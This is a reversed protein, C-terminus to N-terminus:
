GLDARNSGKESSTIAIMVMEHSMPRPHVVDTVHLM